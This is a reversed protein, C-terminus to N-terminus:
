IVRYTIFYFFAQAGANDELVIGVGGRKTLLPQPCAATHVIHCHEREAGAHSASDHDGAVNPVAHVAHSAFEPVHGHFGFAHTASAAVQATNFLVSGCRCYHAHSFFSDGATARSSQSVSGTRVGFEARLRNVVKCDLAILISASNKAM